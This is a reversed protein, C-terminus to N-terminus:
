PKRGDRYDPRARDMLQEASQTSRRGAGPGRACSTMMMAADEHTPFRPRVWPIHAPTRRLACAAADHGAILNRPCTRHM